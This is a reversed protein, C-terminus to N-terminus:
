KKRKKIILVVILILVLGIVGYTIYSSSGGANNRLAAAISDSTSSNSGGDYVLGSNLLDMIKDYYENRTKKQGKGAGFGLTIRNKSPYKVPKKPSGFLKVLTSYIAAKNAGDVCTIWIKWGLTADAAGKEVRKISLIVENIEDATVTTSSPDFFKYKRSVKLDM